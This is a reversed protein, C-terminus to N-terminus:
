SGATMEAFAIARFFPGLARHQDVRVVHDHAVVQRAVQDHVEAVGLSASSMSPGYQLLVPRSCSSHSFDVRVQVHQAEIGPKLGHNGLRFPAQRRRVRSGPASSM